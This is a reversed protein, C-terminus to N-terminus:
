VGECVYDTTTDTADITNPVGDADATWDNGYALTAGNTPPSGGTNM